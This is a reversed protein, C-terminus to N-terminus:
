EIVVSGHQVLWFCHLRKGTGSNGGWETNKNKSCHTPQFVWHVKVLEIDYILWSNPPIKDSHGDSKSRICASTLPQLSVLYSILSFFIASFVCLFEIVYTLTPPIVLRRKEGVQMGPFWLYAPIYVDCCNKSLFYM